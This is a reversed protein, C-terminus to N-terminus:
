ATTSFGSIVANRAEDGFVFGYEGVVQGYAATDKTKALDEYFFPDITILGVQERDIIYLEDTPCSRDVAISVRNGIADVIVDIEIGGMSESRETRVSGEYFSSIKRKAWGGCLILDPKGGENWCNQLEDEIMKRTLAASSAATTNSTIQEKLGGFGRPTTTSGAKRQGHYVMLNLLHLNEAMVKDIQREVVNPIGYMPILANSRSVEISKQLIASYNFATTPETFHGDSASAGELRNRGVLSVTTSDAHTAQTGGFDRTVTLTNTSVASVWVYEADIKLIDGVQFISGDTVVLSTDTSDSTWTADNMTTSRGSYTDLLWEYTKGPTNVFAFKNMNDLGLASIAVIDMPDTMIIRDTVMRKQPLTASYSHMQGTAM